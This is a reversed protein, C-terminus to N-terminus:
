YKSKFLEYKGKEILLQKELSEIKAIFRKGIYDKAEDFTPFYQEYTTAKGNRREKGDSGIVYVCSETVRSVEVEHITDYWQKVQYYKM